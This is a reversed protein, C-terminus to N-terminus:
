AAAAFVGFLATRRCLPSVLDGLLQHAGDRGSPHLLSAHTKTWFADDQREVLKSGSVSSGISIPQSARDPNQRQDPLILDKTSVAASLSLLCPCLRSGRTCLSRRSYRKKLDSNRIKKRPSRKSRI